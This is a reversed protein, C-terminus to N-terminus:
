ELEILMETVSPRFGCASFLARAPDNRAVVDLRVQPVGILKFREVALTVMQRAVGENRYEEEVWLDHIFGFESVRYIPIERQVDGVLFGALQSGGGAPAADAVLFVSRPDGARQGLWNAYRDAPNPRFSYKAPDIKEHFACIKAVMPLVGPVDDPTAPRVNM